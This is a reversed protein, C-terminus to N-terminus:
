QVIVRYLEVLQQLSFRQNAPSTSPLPHAELGTHPQCLRTYLRHATSGTTFIRNMQTGHLLGAIDNPVPNKISSDAAGAIDCCALVDWLAIHNKLVLSRRQENTEPLPVGFLAALVPWFRNRPNGYYIGCARSLPSPMTGLILTRCDADVIPPLTHTIKKRLEGYNAHTRPNEKRM